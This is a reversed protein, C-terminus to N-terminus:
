NEVSDPDKEFLNGAKGLVSCNNFCRVIDAADFSEWEDYRGAANEGSDPDCSFPIFIGAPYPKWNNGSIGTAVGTVVTSRQIRGKFDPASNSITANGKGSMPSVTLWSDKAM